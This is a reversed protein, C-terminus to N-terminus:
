EKILKFIKQTEQTKVKLFYMGSAYGKLNIEMKGSGADFPIQDLERGDLASVFIIGSEAASGFDVWVTEAFPNPYVELNGLAKDETPIGVLQDVRFEHILSTGFDSNFNKLIGTTAVGVLRVYGSGSSNAFFYLGDKGTDYFEFRYCGPQLYLTDRYITTASFGSASYVINDNIDKVVWSNQAPASNTNLLVSFPATYVPVESFYVGFTNNLTYPDTQSNPNSVVVQFQLPTVTTTSSFSPLTITDTELFALNGTWSYSYQQGGIVGYDLTCSTLNSTGNNKIVVIPHNCVPNFRNFTNRSTPALIDEVAVDLTFNPAEYTILSTGFIYSCYNNGINTFAQMDLDFVHTFSPNVSGTLEYEIPHVDAGPCWNARDYLWTGAQPYLPNLGCNNRWILKQVVPNFDINLYHYKACFEACNQNGGFGHGTQLIRLKVGAAASDITISRPDLYNEISNNTDGYPYSGTWLYDVKYPKRAPTGEVFAFNCTVTFGDQYGSYLVRIEVSDKLIPLFDTVDIRYGWQWSNSFNGAYPTIARAIEIDEIIEFYTYYQWFSQYSTTDPIVWLSDIINGANDYLYNYYGSAYVQLTDTAVTPNLSDSFFIWDLVPNATSDTLGTASNFFYTYTPVYSIVASDVANGNLTFIPSTTLTSDIVGTRRRAFVNTTYDWDSCGSSPCGFKFNLWVREFSITDSPFVAWQDYNGYWPLHVNDHSVVYTTDGPSAYIAGSFVLTLILFFKKM